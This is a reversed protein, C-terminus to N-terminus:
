PSTAADAFRPPTAADAGRAASPGPAAGAMLREVDAVTVTTFTQPRCRPCQRLRYRVIDLVTVEEGGASGGCRPRCHYWSGPRESFQSNAYFTTM